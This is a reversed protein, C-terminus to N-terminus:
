SERSDGTCSATDCSCRSASRADTVGCHELLKERLNQRARHLRVTTANKTASMRAAADKLSHEEIDVLRILNAQGPPLSNTLDLACACPHEVDGLTVQPAGQRLDKEPLDGADTLLERGSKRAHDILARRTITYVWARLKSPDSLTGQKELARLLALQVVDDADATSRTRSRVFAMLEPRLRELSELRPTSNLANESSSSMPSELMHGVRPSHLRPDSFPLLIGIRLIRM